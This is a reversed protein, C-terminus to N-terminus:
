VQRSKSIAESVAKRVSLPLNYTLNFAWYELLKGEGGFVPIADMASSIYHDSLLLSMDNYYAFMELPAFVNGVVRWPASAAGLVRTLFLKGDRHRLIHPLNYALQALVYAERVVGSPSIPGFAALGLPLFDRTSLGYAGLAVYLAKSVGELGVTFGLDGIFGQMRRDGIQGKIYQREEFVVKGEEFHREIIMRIWGERLSFTKRLTELQEMSVVGRKYQQELIGMLWNERYGQSLCLRAPNVVLDQVLQRRAETDTALQHVSKPQWSLAGKELLYRPTSNALAITRETTIRQSDNWELLDNAKQVEIAEKVYDLNRLIRGTHERYKENGLLRLLPKGVLPVNDLVLYPVYRRSGDKLKDAEEGSVKDLRQWDGISGEQVKQRLDKDRLLMTRVHWLNPLGSRYREDDQKLQQILGDVHEFENVHAALYTDLRDFDVEDFHAFVGRRLGNLIIRVHVPSFPLFFPVALGPRCDVAVFESLGDKQENRTLINAQSVFTYWEYQLALGTAGIEHCLRVLDDMFKRKRVVESNPPEKTKGIWRTIIQDDAEYRPGRGNIWQHIEAFSRVDGDWYYGFPRAVSDTGLEIRAATRFLEQWILGSRLAEERLRPAFPAQYSLKFLLDRFAEKWRSKPRLVKLAVPPNEETLKSADFIVGREPIARYVQGAFGSGPSTEIALRERGLSDGDLGYVEREVNEGQYYGRREPKIIVESSDVRKQLQQRFFDPTVVEQRPEDKPSASYVVVEETQQAPLEKEPAGRSFFRSSLVAEKLM